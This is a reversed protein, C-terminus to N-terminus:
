MEDLSVVLADGHDVNACPRGIGASYGIMDGYQTRM